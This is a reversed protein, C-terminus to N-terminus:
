FARAVKWSDGSSDHWFTEPTNTLNLKGSCADEPIREGGVRWSRSSNLYIAPYIGGHRVRSKGILNRQYLTSFNRIDLLRVLKSRVMRMAVIWWSLPLNAANNRLGNGEVSIFSTPDHYIRKLPSIKKNMIIRHKNFEVEKQLEYSM